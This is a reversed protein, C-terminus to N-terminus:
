GSNEAAVAFSLISSAAVVPASAMTLAQGQHSCFKPSATSAPAPASLTKSTM